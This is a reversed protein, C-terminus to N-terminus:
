KSISLLTKNYVFRRPERHSTIVTGTPQKDRSWDSNIVPSWDSNKRAIRAIGPNYLAFVQPHHIMRILHM